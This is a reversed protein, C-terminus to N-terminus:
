AAALPQTPATFLGGYASTPPQLPLRQTLRPQRAPHQLQITQPRPRRRAPHFHLHDPIFFAYSSSSEGTPLRGNVLGPLVAGRRRNVHHAIAVPGDRRAQLNDLAPLNGMLQAVKMWRSRSYRRLGPQSPQDSARPRRADTLTASPCRHAPAAPPPRSRRAPASNAGSLM